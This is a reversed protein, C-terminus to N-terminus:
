NERADYLETLGDMLTRAIREGTGKEFHCMKVEYGGNEWCFAAPIYSVMGNSYACVFTMKFPSGERVSRGCTDHWECPVTAFAVDGFSFTTIQFCDYDNKPKRLEMFQRSRPLKFDKKIVAIKGAKVYFAGGLADSIFTSLM